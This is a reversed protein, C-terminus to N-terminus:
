LRRRETFSVDYLETLKFPSENLNWVGNADSLYGLEDLKELLHMWHTIKEAMNKM